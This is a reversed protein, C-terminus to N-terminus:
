ECLQHSVNELNGEVSQQRVPAVTDHEKLRHLGEEGEVDLHEIM